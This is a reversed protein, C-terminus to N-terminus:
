AHLKKEACSKWSFNNGWQESERSLKTRYKKNSLLRDIGMTFAEVDRVKVLLGTKNNIVSDKLGDVNSAVVPTGCINAEINTIGWGEVESPHIAIWSQTLIKAKEEETVKGMFHVNNQIQLRAVLSELKMRNEGDGAINLQLTPYKKKLGHVAKIGVDINKYDRLRGIYVLSPNTTKKVKAKKISVGPEVIFIPKKKGYGMKEMSEKTSKSITMMQQDKYIYPMAKEELFMAIKSLPFPLGVRFMEQHIHNILGVIPKKIYLPTFFPVGKATDIVLDYQNRLKLVYYLFAWIPVTFLGGRRIIRVGDIIEYRKSHGDNGCFLTVKNGNRVFEKALNHLYYEAGGSWVHRIDYWNVILIRKGFPTYNLKPLPRFLEAFDLLNALVFGGNRQLLHLLVNAVFTTFSTFFVVNVIDGISAHNYSIGTIMGITTVLAVFSFLYHHCILHYVTITNAVTFLAISMAYLTRYDAVSAMKDAFVFPLLVSGLPGIGVFAVTTLAVTLSFIMYFNTNPNRHAGEDRSVIPVLFIHFLSGFFFIIKGILSLFAYIGAQTASLYHKVLLIDFTLFANTSLGTFMSAFFFTKMFSYKHESKPQKRTVVSAVILSLASALLVSFPISLYALEANGLSVSTFAFGLKSIAEVLFFVATWVFLFRGHVFGRAVSAFIGFMIVPILSILPLYSNVHFYGLLFPMSVSWILSIMIAYKICKRMIQKYFATGAAIGSRATIFATRHNITAGLAGFGISFIYLFTNVLAILGFNEFSLTRGLYANFVLNILNSFVMSGILFSNQGLIYKAVLSKLKVM